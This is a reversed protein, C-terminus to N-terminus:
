KSTWSVWSGSNKRNWQRTGIADIRLAGDNAQVTSAVPTATLTVGCDFQAGGASCGGQLNGAAPAGVSYYGNESTLSGVVLVGNASSAGCSSSSSTQITAAYYHCDSYFKEQQNVMALLLNRGEARRAQATYDRYSPYAIAAIIGVIVVAIMLEILTFGLSLRKKM